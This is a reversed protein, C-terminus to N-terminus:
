LGFVQSVRIYGTQGDRHRVKVWGPTSTTTPSSAQEALEVLVNQEARFIVPASEEPNGRVDALAVRIVLMRKEALAKTGIWGITGTMDRVKTWGEVNVLTELPVDRGYVFLPRARSSPADYLITAPESTARFDAATAACTWALALMWFATPRCRATM